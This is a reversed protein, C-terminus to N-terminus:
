QLTWAQFFYIRTIIKDCLLFAPSMGEAAIARYVATEVDDPRLSTREIVSQVRQKLHAALGSRELRELLVRETEASRCLRSWRPDM